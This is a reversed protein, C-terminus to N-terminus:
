RHLLDLANLIDRLLSYMASVDRKLISSHAAASTDCLEMQIYLHEEEVWASYYRVISTLKSSDEDHMSLGALAQV